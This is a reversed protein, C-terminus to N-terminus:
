RMQGIREMIRKGCVVCYNQPVSGNKDAYYKEGKFIDSGCSRCGTLATATEQTLIYM